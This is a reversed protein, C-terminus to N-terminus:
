SFEQLQPNIIKWDPGLVFVSRSRGVTPRNPWNTPRPRGACSWRGRPAHSKRPAACGFCGQPPEFDIREVIRGPPARLRSARCECAQAAPRSPGRFGGGGGGPATDHDPRLHPACFAHHQPRHPSQRGNRACISRPEPTAVGVGGSPGLAAERLAPHRHEPVPTAGCRPHTPASAARDENPLWYAARASPPRAGGRLLAGRRSRELGVSGVHQECAAWMGRM